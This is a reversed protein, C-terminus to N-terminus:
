AELRISPSDTGYAGTKVGVRFKWPTHALTLTRLTNETFSQIDYATVGDDPSGQFTVTSDVLGGIFLQSLAPLSNWETFQNEGTVALIENVM